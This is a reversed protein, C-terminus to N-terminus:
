EKRRDDYVKKWEAAEDIAPALEPLHEKLYDAYELIRDRFQRMSESLNPLDSWDWWILAPEPGKLGIATAKLLKSLRTRLDTEEQYDHKMDDLEKYAEELSQFLKQAVSHYNIDVFMRDLMAKYQFMEQATLRAM